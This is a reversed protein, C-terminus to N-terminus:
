QHADAHHEGYGDANGHPDLRGDTGDAASGREGHREDRHHREGADVRDRRGSRLLEADGDRRNRRRTDGAHERVRGDTGDGAAHEVRRRGVRQDVTGTGSSNEAAVSFYHTADEALAEITTSCATTGSETTCSSANVLTTTYHDTIVIYTTVSSDDGGAAAPPKWTLTVNNIGSVQTGALNRVAGPAGAPTSTTETAGRSSQPRRATSSSTTSNPRSNSNGYSAPTAQTNSGSPASPSPGVPNDDDGCGIALLTVAAAALLHKLHNRHHTM